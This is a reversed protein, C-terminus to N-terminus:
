NNEHAAPLEHHDSRRVEVRFYRVFRCGHCHERRQDIFNLVCRYGPIRFPLQSRERADGIQEDGAGATMRLLLDFHEVLYELGEDGHDLQFGPGPECAMEGGDRIRGRRQNPCKGEIVRDRHRRRNEALRHCEALEIENGVGPCLALTMKVSDRLTLGDAFGDGVDQDLAAFGDDDMGNGPIGAGANRVAAKALQDQAGAIIGQKCQMNSGPAVKGSM